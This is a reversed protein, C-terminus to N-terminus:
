IIASFSFINKGSDQGQAMHSATAYDLSPQAISVVWFYLYVFMNTHLSPEFQDFTKCTTASFM